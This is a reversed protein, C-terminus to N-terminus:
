HSKHCREVPVEKKKRRMVAMMRGSNGGRCSKQPFMWSKDQRGALCWNFSMIKNMKFDARIMLRSQM